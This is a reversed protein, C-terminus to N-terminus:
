NPKSQSEGIQLLFLILLEVRQLLATAQADTFSCEIEHDGRNLLDFLALASAVDAEVFKTFPERNIPRAIFLLRARRTPRGNHIMGPPPPSGLWVMVERGPALDHLVHTLVARLSSIFHRVRDPRNSTLTERAAHIVTVLQPGRRQIAPELAANILAQADLRRETREARQEGEGSDSEVVLEALVDVATFNELEPFDALCGPLDLSSRGRLDQEFGAYAGQLALSAERMESLGAVALRRELTMWEFTSLADQKWPRYWEEMARQQAAVVDRISGLSGLSDRYVPELLAARATLARIEEGLSAQVAKLQETLGSAQVAQLQQTLGSAQMAQLQASLGSTQMANAQAALSSGDLERLRQRLDSNLALSEDLRSTLARTGEFAERIADRQRTLDGLPDSQRFADLIDFYGPPLKSSMSLDVTDRM